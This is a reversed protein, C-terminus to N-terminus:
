SKNKTEEIIAALAINETKKLFFYGLLVGFFIIGCEGAVVVKRKCWECTQIIIKGTLIIL